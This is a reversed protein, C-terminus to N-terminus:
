AYNERWPIGAFDWASPDYGMTTRTEMWFRWAFWMAMVTDQKLNRTPIDPRWSVLEHLLTELRSEALQTGWPIVVEQRIFSSAMSAVGLVPDMKRGATQHEQVRFGYLRSLSQLREDRAIGKQLAATEVVVDLPSYRVAFDQIADLIQEVQGLGFDLRVDIIQFSERDYAAAFVANGGGLAPDVGLVVTKGDPVKCVEATRDKCQEILDSGFTQSGSAMPTQMYNRWWADEGVIARKLELDTASWMEPCLPNNDTDLAPMQVLDILPGLGPDNLFFEYIDNMGVRTGVMIIKGDKGPRSFFDQRLTDAIRETQNMSKLAQVDDILLLDTRTGQVSSTWGRVQLSYDREDHEAKAVTLHEATWPKGGKEQGDTYFPGFMGIYPGFQNVDTMRHSVRRLVRKAFNNSEHVYTIRFDPDVALKFNIYDELLTTKGHEPPCLIMTIRGPPANEISEVMKRHHKFTEFGFFKRRFAPFSTAYESAVSRDNNLIHGERISDVTAAFTPYKKRWRYYTAPSSVGDICEIIATTTQDPQERLIEIFMDRREKGIQSNRKRAAKLQDGQLKEKKPAPKEYAPEVRKPTPKDYLDTREGKTAKGSIDWQPFQEILPAILQELASPEDM